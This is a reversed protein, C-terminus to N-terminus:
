VGNLVTHHDDPLRVVLDGMQVPSGESRHTSVKSGFGHMKVQQCSGTQIFLRLAAHLPSLACIRGQDIHSHGRAGMACVHESTVMALKLVTQRNTEQFHAQPKMTGELHSLLSRGDSGLWRRRCPGFQCSRPVRSGPPTLFTSPRGPQGGVKPTKKFIEQSQNWHSRQGCTGLGTHNSWYGGSVDAGIHKNCPQYCLM